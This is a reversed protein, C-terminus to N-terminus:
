ASRFRVMGTPNTASRGKLQVQARINTARGQDLLELSGDVGYDDIREDRFLYEHEPLLNQLAKISQRQLISGADVIPLPGDITM